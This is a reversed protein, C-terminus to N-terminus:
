KKAYKEYLVNKFQDPTYQDNLVGDSYLQLIYNNTILMSEYHKLTSPHTFYEEATVGLRKALEENIQTMILDNSEGIAQKIQLWETYIQKM